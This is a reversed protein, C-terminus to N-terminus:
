VCMKTRFKGKENIFNFILMARIKKENFILM